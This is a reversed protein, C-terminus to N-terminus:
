SRLLRLAWLAGGVVLGGSTVVVGGLLASLSDALQVGTLSGVWEGITPLLEVQGSFFQAFGACGIGVGLAVLLSDLSFWRQDAMDGTAAKLSRELLGRPLPESKMSSLSAMIARERAAERRFAADEALRTRIEHARAPTLEGREYAGLDALLEDDHSHGNMNM